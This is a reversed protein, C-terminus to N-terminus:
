ACTLRGRPAHDVPHGPTADRHGLPRAGRAGGSPLLDHFGATEQGLIDRILRLATADSMSLDLSRSFRRSVGADATVDEDARPKGELFLDGRIAPVSTEEGTDRQESQVRRNVAHIKM